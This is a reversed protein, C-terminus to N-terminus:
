DPALDATGVYVGANGDIAVDRLEGSFRYGREGRTVVGEASSGSIREAADRGAEAAPRLRGDVTIEYRTVGENPRILIRKGPADDGSTAPRSAAAAGTGALLSAIGALGV